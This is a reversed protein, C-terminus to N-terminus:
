EIYGGYLISDGVTEDIIFILLTIREGNFIFKTSRFISDGENSLCSIETSNQVVPISMFPTFGEGEGTIDKFSLEDIGGSVSVLYDIKSESKNSFYGTYTGVVRNVITEDKVCGSLIVLFYIVLFFYYKM